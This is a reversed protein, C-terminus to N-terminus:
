GGRLGRGDLSPFINNNGSGEVVEGKIPSPLTPTLM